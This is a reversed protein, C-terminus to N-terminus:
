GCPRNEELTSAASVLTMPPRMTFTKLQYSLSYPYELRIMSRAMIIPFDRSQDLVSSDCLLHTIVHGRHSPRPMSIVSETLRNLLPHQPM